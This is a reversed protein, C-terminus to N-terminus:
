RALLPSVAMANNLVHLVIPALLGGTRRALLGAILGFLLYFPMLLLEEHLLAFLSAQIANAWGFPVHRAVGELVVGRFIVEEDWKAQHFNRLRSGRQKQM